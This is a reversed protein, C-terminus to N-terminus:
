EDKLEWQNVTECGSGYGRITGKILYHGPRDANKYVKLYGRGPCWYLGYPLADSRTYSQEDIYIEQSSADYSGTINAVRTYSVKDLTFVTTIKGSLKNDSDIYIKMKQSLYIKGDKTIGQGDQVSTGGWNYQFIEKASQAPLEVAVFLLLMVAALTIPKMCHTKIFTFVVAATAIGYLLYKLLFDRQM